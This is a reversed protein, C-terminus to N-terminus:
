RVSSLCSGSVRVVQVSRGASGTGVGIPQLSFCGFRV